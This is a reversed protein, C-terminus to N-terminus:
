LSLEIFSSNVEDDEVTTQLAEREGSGGEEDKPLHVADATTSVRTTTVPASVDRTPEEDVTTTTTMQIADCVEMEIAPPHSIPSDEQENFSDFVDLADM